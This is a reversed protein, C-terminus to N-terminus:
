ESPDPPSPKKMEAKKLEPKLVPSGDAAKATDPDGGPKKGKKLLRKVPYWVIAFLAVFISAVFGVVVAITAAGLGPGTYAFAAGPAMAATAAWIILLKKM